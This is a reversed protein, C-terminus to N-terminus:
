PWSFIGSPLSRERSRVFDNPEIWFTRTRNVTTLRIDLGAGDVSNLPVAIDLRWLRQSGPPVAALLSAGISHRFPTTEGFPADGAWMRGSELFLAVGVDASGRVNGMIMRDELRMLLRQGGPQDAGAYGRQGGRYEGLDLQFPSRLRWGGTYEASLLATHAEGPHIYWAARGSARLDDWRHTDLSRRAEGRMEVAAFSQASGVGAYLDTATFIDDDRSGLMSLSRGVLTGLQIGRRVDQGATLADFGTVRMFDIKRAGGLLNVRAARRMVYRDILATSTDTVLGSDAVLVPVRAPDSQERSLSLGFLSLRGPKGVRVVGGVDAWLREVLVAPDASHPRVFPVLERSRGVVVRWATRQVDTYFPRALDMDWGGGVGRRAGNLQLVLPRNFAQYDIVEARFTDRYDFGERWTGVVRTATGNLNESGAKLRTIWPSTGSVGVSAVPSFEDITVVEVRVGDAGDAYATVSADALLQQARLIRESESRRIPTCIDGARLLLFRRIVDPDTTVHLNHTLAALLEYREFVGGFSPGQARIIVDSIRQGNCAVQTRPVVQASLNTAAVIAFTLAAAAARPV